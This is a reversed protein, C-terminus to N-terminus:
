DEGGSAETAFHIIAATLMQGVAFPIGMAWPSLSRSESGVVIVALGALVYWVGALAIESPMSRLAAFIGLGVLIQWLGPLLWLQDPAYAAFVAALGLGTAAAPVFQQAANYLLADALGSHHRRSRAVMEAGILAAAAIATIIWGSFYVFAEKATEGQWYTQALATVLALAGTAALVAPGFGQFVTTAALQSRIESIDALARDLDRM